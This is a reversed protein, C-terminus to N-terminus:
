HLEMTPPARLHGIGRRIARTLPCRSFLAVLYIVYLALLIARRSQQDAWQRDPFVLATTVLVMILAAALSQPAVGIPCIIAAIEVIFLGNFLRRWLPTRPTLSNNCQDCRAVRPFSSRSFLQRM